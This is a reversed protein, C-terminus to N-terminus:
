GALPALAPSHVQVAALEAAQRAANRQQEHVARGANAVAGDQLLADARRVWLGMVRVAYRTTVMEGM